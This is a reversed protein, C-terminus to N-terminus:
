EPLPAIRGQGDRVLLVGVLAGDSRALVAAGHWREDFALTAAVSWLEGARALHAAALAVPAAGPECWVLCDEPAELVRTRERPWPLLEPLELARRALGHARGEPAGGLAVGQGALELRVSDARADEPAALVDEPGVVGGALAFLWGSRAQSRGFLGGGKWSLRARALLPVPAGAPLLEGGLALAPKWGTWEEEPEPALDFRQGTSARPGPHTPTALAIGGLLLSPLSEIELALGTLGLDLAAGGRRYFRSDVRVLEAYAARVHARAEVATGDGALGVSLVAGIPVGRYLVPAGRALGAREAAALVIELGGEEEVEALPPEALAVFERQAPGGPPGPVVALYRAGLVTELGRAGELGLTPRVIWFRSGARALEAASRALRVRVRVGDLAEELTVAEVVGVDIGRYRLADGAALGHGEAARVTLRPGHERWSRLLLFAVLALALLPLLRAWSRRPAREVRAQPPANV